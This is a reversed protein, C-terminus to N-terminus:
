KKTKKVKVMRTREVAASKRKKEAFKEAKDRNTYIRGFKEGDKYYVTVL